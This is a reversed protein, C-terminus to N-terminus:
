VTVAERLFRDLIFQNLLHFVLARLTSTLDGDTRIEPTQATDPLSPSFFTNSRRYLADLVACFRQWISKASLWLPLMRLAFPKL